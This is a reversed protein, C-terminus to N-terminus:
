EDVSQDYYRGIIYNFTSIYGLQYTIVVYDGDNEFPLQGGSAKVSFMRGLYSNTECNNTCNGFNFKRAQRLCDTYTFNYLRLFVRHCSKFIRPNTSARM